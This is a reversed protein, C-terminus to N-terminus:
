REEKSSATICVNHTHINECSYHVPAPLALPKQSVQKVLAPKAVLAAFLINHNVLLVPQSLM